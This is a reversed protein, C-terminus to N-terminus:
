RSLLHRLPGEPELEGEVDFLFNYECYEPARGRLRFLNAIWLYICIAISCEILNNALLMLERGVELAVYKGRKLM